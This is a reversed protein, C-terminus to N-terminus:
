ENLNIYRKWFEDYEYRCWAHCGFPLKGDTLQFLYSPSQEFAFFMAEQPDPINLKVGLELMYQCIFVDENQLYNKKYYTISNKYGLSRYLATFMNRFVSRGNSKKLKMLQPFTLLPRLPYFLRCMTDVKRLSLGGNGVKWLRGGEGATRYDTFWPAGIYDYGKGCWMKLEDRFVFADLQYILIYDYKVFRKYFQYSLMLRNYGMINAFFELDFYEVKLEIGCSRVVDRFVKCDFERPAVLFIDYTGLVRCCNRLATQEYIDPDKYIPITIAIRM